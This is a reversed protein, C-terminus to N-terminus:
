QSTQIRTNQDFILRWSGNENAFTLTLLAYRRSEPGADEYTTRVLALAVDEMERTDVVEIKMTWADDAFWAKHFDLYQDRTTLMEGDPFILTLKPGATITATIGELDRGEIAALHTKLTAGFDATQASVESEALASWSSLLLVFSLMSLIRHTRSVLTSHSTM